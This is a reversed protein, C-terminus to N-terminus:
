VIQIEIKQFFNYGQKKLKEALNIGGKLLVNEDESSIHSIISYRGPSRKFCIGLESLPSKLSASDYKFYNTIIREDFDDSFESDDFRKLIFYITDLSDLKVKM